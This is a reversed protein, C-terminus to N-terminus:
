RFIQYKRFEDPKIESVLDIDDWYKYVHSLSTLYFIKGEIVLFYNHMIRHFSERSIEPLPTGLKIGELQEHSMGIIGKQTALLAADDPKSILRRQSREDILYFQATSDKSDRDFVVEHMLQTDRVEGMEVRIKQTEVRTKEAEANLKETEAGTQSRIREAEAQLKKTEAETKGRTLFHNVVAVLIGGVVSSAFSVLAVIIQVDTSTPSSM